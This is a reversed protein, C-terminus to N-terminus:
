PSEWTPGIVSVWPGTLIDFQTSDILDRVVLAVAADWAIDTAVDWAIAANRANTNWDTAAAVAADWAANRAAIRAAAADRVIDWAAIRAATAINWATDRVINWAAALRTVEDATLEACRNLLAVVQDGNTGFCQRVPLERVVQLQRFGFKNEGQAVPRGKVELLRYPWTGYRAADPATDSAHLLHKSPMSYSAQPPTGPRHTGGIRYQFTGTYFDRLDTTVVKFFTPNM